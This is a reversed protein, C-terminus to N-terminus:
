PAGGDVPDPDREERILWDWCRTALADIEELSLSAGPVPLNVVGPEAFLRTALGRFTALALTKRFTGEDDLDRLGLYAQARRAATQLECVQWFVRADLTTAVAAFDGSDMRASAELLTGVLLRIAPLGPNWDHLDLPCALADVLDLWPELDCGGEQIAVGKELEERARAPEGVWLCAIALLHHLHQAIPADIEGVVVDALIASVESWDVRTARAHAQLTAFGPHGTHTRQVEEAVRSLVELNGSTHAEAWALHWLADPDDKHSRKFSSLWARRSGADRQQLELILEHYAPVTADVSLRCPNGVGYKPLRHSRALSSTSLHPLPSGLEVPHVQGDSLSVARVRRGPHGHVLAVDETVPARWLETFGGVQARSAVLWRRGDRSGCKTIVAQHDLLTVLAPSGSLDADPVPDIGAVAGDPTLTALLLPRGIDSDDDNESIDVWSVISDRLERKDGALLAAWREGDPHSALAIVRRGVRFPGHSAPSGDAEFLHVAGPERPLVAVAPTNRGEISVLDGAINIRRLISWTELHIVLSERPAETWEGGCGFWLHHGDPTLVIRRIGDVQGSLQRKTQWSRVRLTAHDLGLVNGLTGAIWLVGGAIAATVRGLPLPTRLTVRIRPTERGRDFVLVFLARGLPQVLVWSNGDPSDWRCGTSIDLHDFHLFPPLDEEGDLRLYLWHDHLWDMCSDQEATWRDKEAEDEAGDVLEHVAGLATDLDQGTVAEQYTEVLQAREQMAAVQERLAAYRAEWRGPVQMEELAAIAVRADRWDGTELAGCARDIKAAVRGDLARKEFDTAEEIIERAEALARLRGAHPALNRAAQLPDGDDRILLSQELILLADVSSRDRREVGTVGLREFRELVSSGAFTRIRARLDERLASYALLGGTTAGPELLARVEDVAAADLSERQLGVARSMHPRVEQPDAGLDLAQQWLRIAQEYSKEGFAEDARALIEQRRRTRRHREVEDLMQRAEAVAPWRALITRAAQQAARRDGHRWADTMAELLDPMERDRASRLWRELDPVAAGHPANKRLQGLFREVEDPEDTRLADQALATWVPETDPGSLGDLLRLATVRDKSSAAARALLVRVTPNARALPSLDAELAVAEDFVGLLDVLLELLALAEPLGGGSRELAAEFCQRAAEYDYADLHDRGCALPDDPSASSTRWPARPPEADEDPLGALDLERRVWSRADDDLDSVVAHTADDPFHRRHISVVPEDRTDAMVVLESAFRRILLGQLRNKLDYRRATEGAPLDRGTPNVQHILGMLQAVDVAADSRLVAEADLPKPTKKRKKRAMSIGM